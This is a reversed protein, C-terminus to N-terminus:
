VGIWVLSAMRGTRQDRRYSYFRTPDSVTCLGSGGTTRIGCGELRQRALCYLDAWWKGPARGPRFAVTAASDADCFVARVEEGVEFADPGIAPGLWAVLPVAESTRARMASVTAEIVGSALGRWGAHAIGIVAGGPEALLVPLCDATMIALVTGPRTTVAADATPRTANVVGPADADFVQVGHVQELWLVPGPLGAQLRNRNIAVAEPDDGVHDGLNLGRASGDAAGYPGASVGGIRTSVWGHVRPSVPWDPLLGPLGSCNADTSM